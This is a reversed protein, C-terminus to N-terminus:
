REELPNLVERWQGPAVERLRHTERGEEGDTKIFDGGETVYVEVERERGARVDGFPDGPSHEAYGTM